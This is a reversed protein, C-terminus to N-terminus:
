EGIMLRRRTGGSLQSPLKDMHAMLDLHACEREIDSMDTCGKIMAVLRLHESVSLEAVCVDHQPCYGILSRIGRDTLTHGLVTVSGRTAESLGCIMRTLTTQLLYAFM